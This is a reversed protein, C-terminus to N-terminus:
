LKAVRQAREHKGKNAGAPHRFCAAAALRAISSAKTGCHKCYYNM